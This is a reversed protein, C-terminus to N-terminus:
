EKKEEVKKLPVKASRRLCANWICLKRMKQKQELFLFFGSAQDLELSSICESEATGGQNRERKPSLCRESEILGMAQLPATRIASSARAKAPDARSHSQMHPMRYRSAGDAPERPREQWLMIGDDCKITYIITIDNSNFWLFSPRTLM